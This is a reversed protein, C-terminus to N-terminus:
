GLTVGEIHSIFHKRPNKCILTTSPNIMLSIPKWTFDDLVHWTLFTSVLAFQKLCCRYASSDLYAQHVSEKQFTWEKVQALHM